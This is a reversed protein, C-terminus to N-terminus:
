RWCLPDEDLYDNKLAFAAARCGGCLNKVNCKGCKGKLERYRISNIIKNEAWISLLSEERINGVLVPLKPCPYVNGDYSITIAAIGATCGGCISTALKKEYAKLVSKNDIIALPDSVSIKIRSDMKEAKKVIDKFEEKTIERLNKGRGTPIMREISLSSAGLKEALAIVHELEGLNLASITFNINLPMGESVCARIGEVAKKFAGKGRIKDHIKERGDISAQVMKIGSEKLKKATEATILTANTDLYPTLSLESACSIMEFIDERMLPEGGTLIVYRADMNRLEELINKIEELSLESGAKKGAEVSCHACALNCAKTVRIEATYLGYEPPKLASKSKATSKSSAM